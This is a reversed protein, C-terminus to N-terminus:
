DLAGSPHTLIQLEGLAAGVGFTLVASPWREYGFGLFAGAAANFALNILHMPWGRAARQFAAVEGLRARACALREGACPEGARPSPQSLLFVPPIAIASTAAGVYLDIRDQRPVVPVFALNAATLAAFTAAWGWRWRTFARDQQELRAEVAAVQAEPSGAVAEAPITPAALLVVVPLAGIVM